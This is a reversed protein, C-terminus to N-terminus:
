RPIEGCVAGKSVTRASQCAWWLGRRESRDVPQLGSWQHYSTNALFSHMCNETWSVAAASQDAGRLSRQQSKNTPQLRPVQRLVVDDASSIFVWVFLIKV